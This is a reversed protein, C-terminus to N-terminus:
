AMKYYGNEDHLLKLKEVMQAFTMKSMKALEKIQDEDYNFRKPEKGADSVFAPNPIAQASPESSFLDQMISRMDQNKGSRKRTQQRKGMDAEPRIRHRMRKKEPM